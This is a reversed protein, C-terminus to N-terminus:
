LNIAFTGVVSILFPVFSCVIAKKLSIKEIIGIAIVSVSLYWLSFVDFSSLLQYFAPQGSQSIFMAPSFTLQTLGTIKVIVAYLLGGAIVIMYSYLLGSFITKFSGEGGFFTALGRVFLTKVLVMVVTVFGAMVLTVYATVRAIGMMGDAPIPEGQGIAVELLVEQQMELISQFNIGVVLTSLLVIILLPWLVSPEKKVLEFTKSPAVFVNAIKEIIRM